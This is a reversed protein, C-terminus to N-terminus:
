NRKKYLWSTKGLNSWTPHADKHCFKKRASNGEQREVLLTLLVSLAIVAYRKKSLM